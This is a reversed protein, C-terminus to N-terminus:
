AARRARLQRYEELKPPCELLGLAEGALEQLATREGATWEESAQHRMLVKEAILTAEVPYLYTSIWAKPFRAWYRYATSFLHPRGPSELLWDM